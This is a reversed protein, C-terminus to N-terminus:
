QLLIKKVDVIQGQANIIQVFYVGSSAISSLPIETVLQSIKSNYIEQGLITTITVQSGILSSQLSCDINIKSNTPNPYITILEKPSEFSNASLNNTYLDTIEQQTLVRNWIGVDDIKGIFGQNINTSTPANNGIRVKYLNGTQITITPNFSSLVNTILQGDVFLKISTVNTGDVNDYSITYFHWGLQTTLDYKVYSAGIDVGLKNNPFVVGVFQTGANLGGYGVMVLEESVNNTGINYWFSMTRNNQNSVGDFNTNINSNGDFNYARDINGFRDTTLTAGNVTGNNGNGSEDNANGCFPWYGVLGNVLTGGIINCTTNYNVGNYMATIEQQTLARNWIGIDDIWGQYMATSASTNNGDRGFVVPGDSVYYLNSLTTTDTSILQGDLYLKNNTGDFSGVIQHWQNDNINSPTNTTTTSSSNHHLIHIISGNLSDFWLIYGYFRARIIPGIGNNGSYNSPIKIWVSLTLRNPLISSVSPVTIYDNQGNLYYSSNANGLRDNSLLGSIVTGNNGNGSEDNANGNFPWYGVLGNTPVYAPPVQSYIMQTTMLLGFVLFLLKNKM